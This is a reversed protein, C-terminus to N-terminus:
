TYLFKRGVRHVEKKVTALGFMFFRLTILAVQGTAANGALGAM